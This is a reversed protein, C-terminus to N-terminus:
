PLVDEQDWHGCVISVLNGVCSQLTLCHPLPPAYEDGYLHRIASFPRVADWRAKEQWVAIGADVAALNHLYDMHVFDMLSGNRSAIAHITSFGLSFIKDDFFEAMLKQEDTLNASVELVVDAQQRYSEGALM